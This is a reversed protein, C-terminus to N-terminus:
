SLIGNGIFSKPLLERSVQNQLVRGCKFLAALLLM